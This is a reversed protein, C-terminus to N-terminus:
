TLGRTQIAAKKGSNSVPVSWKEIFCYDIAMAFANSGIVIVETDQVSRLIRFAEDEFGSPIKVEFNLRKANDRKVMSIVGQASTSITSYSLVGGEFGWLTSGITRTRGVFCCGVGADISGNDVTVTLVGAVYPPIDDFVVDTVQSLPEYYWDFWNLVDHRTLQKTKSYGSLTQSVTASSGSVNLLAVLGVIQGPTITVSVRRPAVTQTQVTKDFMRWRNTSGQKVWKTTDTLPNDTNDSVASTYLLHSDTVIDGAAYTADGSYAGYVVGLPKWWTPSTAPDHDLNAAQLSECVTQSNNAGAVGRVDGLGYTTANNWVTVTTEPVSSSTLTADTIYAPACIQFDWPNM